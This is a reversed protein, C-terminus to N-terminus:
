QHVKRNPFAQPKPWVVRPASPRHRKPLKCQSVSRLLLRWHREFQEESDVHAVARAFAWFSERSRSFSLRRPEINIQQAVEAMVARILNYGAIAILLESAVLDPSRAPITHLRVQEKLSRLDTEINWREKYLSVVQESPEELTTFLYLIEKAGETRAVILRGAIRAGAPLDPHARRDDRSPEWLVETRSDPTLEGGSLRRARAETLRVIIQHGGNHARWAVAFIGFNRDGILVSREPLRDILPEALGQESVAATGYMPGFCPAMALGTIVHHMVAVKMVPWHSLGHQNEGPPYVRTLAPTHSLRISSGDLVFLRDRLETRPSIELLREFTHEAVRRVAEVPVRQRAQSYAGTSSSISGERVKRCPELLERGNGHILETVATALTGKQSLRQLIMLWITVPLTFICSNEVIELDRRLSDFFNQPLTKGFWNWIQRQQRAESSDPQSAPSAANNQTTGDVLKYRIHPGPRWTL